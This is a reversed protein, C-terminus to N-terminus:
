KVFRNSVFAGSFLSMVALAITKAQEGDFPVVQGEVPGSMRHHEISTIAKAHKM